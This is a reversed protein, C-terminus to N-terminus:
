ANEEVLGAQRQPYLQYDKKDALVKLFLALCATIIQSSVVSLWVGWQGWFVPLIFLLILLSLPEAYVCIYSYVNKETAYFSSTIIRSYAYFMLGLLFIPMAEAVLVGTSPASGFFEGVYERTYFLAMNSALAIGIATVIAIKRTQLVQKNKGEGYYQSMLPQSGDGVGQVLMQVIYIAYAICAYCAVAEEGGNMMSFRNIFMLSAMPSLTLGFPAIGVKGIELAMQGFGSLSGLVPLKWYILYFIAELAAVLQGVVTALAAGEAGMDYVWIFLYDLFINTIFGSIMVIFAFFSSGNNRIIPVIGTSLIQFVAGLVIVDLYEKGMALIQGTAGFLRLVPENLFLFAVTIVVSALLLLLLTGRVYRGATEPGETGRSISWLVSGGIGIGTGLAQLLAVVPYAINIASLGADGMSRGVFLGDTISYVGSLSFALVSPIVYVAFQKYLSM